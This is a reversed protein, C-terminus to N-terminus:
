LYNSLCPGKGDFLLKPHFAMALQTQSPQLAKLHLTSDLRLHKLCRLGGNSFNPLFINIQHSPSTDYTAACYCQQAQQSLIPGLNGLAGAVLIINFSRTLEAPWPLFHHQRSEHRELPRSDTKRCRPRTCTPKQLNIGLAQEVQM